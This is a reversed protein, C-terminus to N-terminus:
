NTTLHLSSPKLHHTPAPCRVRRMLWLVDQTNFELGLEHLHRKIRATKKPGINPVQSLQDEALAVLDGLFVIGANHLDLSGRFWGIVPGLEHVVMRDLLQFRDKIPGRAPFKLVITM